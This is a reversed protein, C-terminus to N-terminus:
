KYNNKIDDSFKVAVELALESAYQLRASSADRLFSATFVLPSPTWSRQFKKLKQSSVWSQALAKPIAAVGLGKEVMRLIGYLSSSPFVQINGQDIHKVENKIEFFPRTGKAYTLVPKNFFREPDATFDEEVSAYWELEFEPLALNTTRADDIPGLLFGLDIERSLISQRLNTSVDVHYEIQVKPLRDHLASIFDPLWTQAVTESAGIRILGEVVDPNAINSEISDYISEIQQAYRVLQEGYRTLRLTAHGPEFLDIGLTSEMKKLRTTIAPQTLSLSKAAKSIGGVRWVTLLTHLQEISINIM